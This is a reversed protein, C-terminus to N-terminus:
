GLSGQVHGIHFKVIIERVQTFLTGALWAPVNLVKRALGMRQTIDRNNELHSLTYTIQKALVQAKGRINSTCDVNIKKINRM